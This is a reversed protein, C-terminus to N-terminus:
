CLGTENSRPSLDHNGGIYVWIQKTASLFSILTRTLIFLEASTNPTEVKTCTHPTIYIHTDTYTHLDLDVRPIRKSEM